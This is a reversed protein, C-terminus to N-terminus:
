DLNVNANEVKLNSVLTDITVQNAMFNLFIDCKLKYAKAEKKNQHVMLVVLTDSRYARRGTVALGSLLISGLSKNTGWDFSSVTRSHVTIVAGKSRKPATFKDKYYSWNKIRNVDISNVPANNGSSDTERGPSCGAVMVMALIAVLSILLANRM